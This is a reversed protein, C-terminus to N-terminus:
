CEIDHNFYKDWNIGIEVMNFNFLNNLFNFLLLFNDSLM